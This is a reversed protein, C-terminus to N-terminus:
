LRSAKLAAGYLATNDNLIVKIPIDQLFHKMRGKEFFAELFEGNELLPLIKPAVGGGIFVGNWAMMGLAWNGAQAGYLSCFTSMTKQCLPDSNDLAAKCILIAPDIGKCADEFWAAEKIRGTDRYFQYINYIGPGSLLREVSVHGKFKKSLFLMLDSEETSRPSFDAHGGECAFAHHSHGDWYLGAQGLGTGASIVAANGKAHMGQNLTHFDDQQLVEIGYANAEVDNIIKIKQHGLLEYFNKEEVIWPLNPTQCCGNKVPGAIGFTAAEIPNPNKSLFDQIIEKLSAFDQSPYRESVVETYSDENFFCICVNTKTGGIDAALFYKPQEM